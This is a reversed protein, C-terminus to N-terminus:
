RRCWTRSLPLNCSTTGARSVPVSKVAVRGDASRGLAEYVKVLAEPTIERTMYVRPVATGSITVSDAATKVNENKNGGCASLSVCASMVSFILFRKM